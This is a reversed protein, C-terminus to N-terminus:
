KWIPAQAILTFVFSFKCVFTRNKGEDDEEEEEEEVQDEEEEEEDDTGQRDGGKARGKNKIPTGAGESGEAGTAKPVRAKIGGYNAADCWLLIEWAHLFKMDISHFLEKNRITNTVYEIYALADQVSRKKTCIIIRNFDAYVVDAGLRRFESILQVFLKKM